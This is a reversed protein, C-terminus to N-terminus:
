QQASRAAPTTAEGVAKLNALGTEFDKGMMRDMTIFIQMVKMPFASPGYMSWTVETSDGKIDFTFESTNHGEFPKLFDLKIVARAPADIGTVEMRGAGAKANGSWEYIAGKGSSAGSFTKQMAPDLKEFPSWSAWNHFDTVLPFLRERPARIMTSRSVRFDDSKMAAAGLIAAVVVALVLLLVILM